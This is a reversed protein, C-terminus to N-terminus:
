EPNNPKLFREGRGTLNYLIMGRKWRSFVGKEFSISDAVFPKSQKLYSFVAKSTKAKGQLTTTRFFYYIKDFLEKKSVDNLLHQQFKLAKYRVTVNSLVKDHSDLVANSMNENHRVLRMLVTDITCYYSSTAIARIHFDYDQSQQVDEDWRLNHEQIFSKKWLAAGTTWFISFQVYDNLPDKSTIAEARLGFSKQHVADYRETQCISYFYNSEKLQTMQQELKLPMMLDDSDFWNIYSGQSKELGFNRCANAGKKKSSPRELWKIRHDRFIWQRVKEKSNDTSGDDVVLCEWNTYSQEHISNLVADLMSARNYTPIIISILANM